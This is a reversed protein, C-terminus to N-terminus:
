FLMIYKGNMGGSTNYGANGSTDFKAGTHLKTFVNILTESGDKAKGIPIGRGNDSITVWDGDVTIDCNTCYGNLYEDVVNSIIELTIQYVGDASTSAIYMGPRLRIAEMSELTKIDDIGYNDMM